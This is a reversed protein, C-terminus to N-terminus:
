FLKPTTLAIRRWSKCVRLLVPPSRWKYLYPMETVTTFYFISGMIENPLRRIPALLSKANNLSNNVKQWEGSLQALRLVLSSIEGDLKSRQQERNEIIEKLSSTQLYDPIFRTGLRRRVAEDFGLDPENQTM